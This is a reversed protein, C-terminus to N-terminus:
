MPAANEAAAPARHKAARARKPPAAELTKTLREVRKSLGDIEKKTPLGLRHLMDTVGDDFTDGIKDIADAATKRVDLKAKLEDIRDKTTEEFTKGRKVLAKFLKGSEDEALSLAGLGALWIEHASEKILPIGKPKEIAKTMTSVGETSSRKALAGGRSDTRWRVTL